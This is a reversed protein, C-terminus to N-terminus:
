KKRHMLLALAGLGLLATSSPEPITTTFEVQFGELRTNGNSGDDLAEISLVTNKTIAETNNSGSNLTDVGNVLWADGGGNDFKDVTVFGYSDVSGRGQVTIDSITFVVTKSDDTGSTDGSLRVRQSSFVAGQSGDNLTGDLTLDFTFNVGDTTAAIDQIVIPLSTNPAGIYSSFDAGTNSIFTYTIVAAQSQSLTLLLALLTIKPAM